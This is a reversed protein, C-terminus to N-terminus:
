APTLESKVTIDGPESMDITRLAVERIRALARSEAEARTEGHAYVEVELMGVSTDLSITSDTVTDDEVEADLLADLLREADVKLREPDADSRLFQTIHVAVTM